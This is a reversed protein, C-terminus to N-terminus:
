KAKKRLYCAANTAKRCAVCQRGQPTLYLNDGILPHGRKCHTKKLNVHRGKNAQDRNNDAWTGEFLHDPNVCERVDCQHMVALGEGVDRGRSAVFSVRHALVPKKMQPATIRGYGCDTKSGVWVWCDGSGLGPYRYVKAWFRKKFAEDFHQASLVKHKNM